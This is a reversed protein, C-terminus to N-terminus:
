KMSLHEGERSEWFSLFSQKLLKIISCASDSQACNQGIEKMSFWAVDRMEQSKQLLTSAPTRYVLYM